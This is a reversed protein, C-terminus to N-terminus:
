SDFGVASVPRLGYLPNGVTQNRPGITVKVASTATRAATVSGSDIDIYYEAAFNPDSFNGAAGPVAHNTRIRWFADVLGAQARFYTKTRKIGVADVLRTRQYAMNTIYVMISTMVLSFLLVVFLVAGKKNGFCRPLRKMM